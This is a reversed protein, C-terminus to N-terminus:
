ENELFDKVDRGFADAVKKITTFNVNGKAGRELRTITHRAINAKKALDTKSWGKEARAVRIKVPDIKYKNKTIKVAEM